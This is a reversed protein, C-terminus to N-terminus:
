SLVAFARVPFSSCGRVPAPVASFRFGSRPLRGLRCLNEVIPIGAALLVSHAPRAPDDMDDVNLADIGVLGVERAVLIEAAERTLFPSGTPYESSGWKTDWATHFLIAAGRLEGDREVILRASISRDSQDAVTVVAGPLNAVREMPLEALDAGAAYRHFPSDIYTGSNGILEIRHIAFETGAAYRDRSAERSLFETVRPAPMWPYTAQGSVIPHSLDILDNM